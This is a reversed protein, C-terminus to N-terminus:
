GDIGIECPASPNICRKRRTRMAPNREALKHAECSRRSSLADVGMPHTLNNNDIHWTKDQVQHSFDFRKGVVEVAYEIVHVRTRCQSTL